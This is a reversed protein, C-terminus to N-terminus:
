MDAPSPEKETEGAAAPKQAAEGDSKPYTVSFLVFFLVFVAFIVWAFDPTFDPFRVARYFLVIASLATFVIETQVIVRHRLPDRAALLSGIGLAALAAGFMKTMTADYPVWDFWGSSRGGLILLVFAFVEAVIGHVILVYAATRNRASM